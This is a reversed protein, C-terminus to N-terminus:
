RPHPGRHALLVVLCPACRGCASRAKAEGLVAWGTVSRIKGCSGEERFGLARARVGGWSLGVSLPSDRAMLGAIELWIAPWTGEAAGGRVSCALSHARVGV